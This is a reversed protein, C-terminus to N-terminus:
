CQLPFHTTMSISGLKVLWIYDSYAGKGQGPDEREIASSYTLLKWIKDLFHSLVELCAGKKNSVQLCKLVSRSDDSLCGLSRALARANERPNPQSAWPALASGSMM